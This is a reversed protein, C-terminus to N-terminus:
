VTNYYKDTLSHAKQITTPYKIGGITASGEFIPEQSLAKAGAEFEPTGKQSYKLGFRNTPEKPTTEKIIKIKGDEAMKRILKRNEEPMAYNRTLFRDLQSASPDQDNHFLKYEKHAEIVNKSQEERIAEPKFKTSDLNDRVKGAKM